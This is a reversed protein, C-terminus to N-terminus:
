LKFSGIGTQAADFTGKVYQGSNKHKILIEAGNLIDKNKFM